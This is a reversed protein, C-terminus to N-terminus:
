EVLRTEAEEETMVDIEDILVQEVIVALDKVSPADFLQQLTLDVGFSMKLRMVLQMGLLSHGGALFFNDNAGITESGLLKQVIMLLNAEIPTAPAEHGVEGLPLPQSQDELKGVDLKGNPSLPVARLQMITSPVMYDPLSRLLHQQLQQATPIPTSERPLVYADLQSGGADCVKVTAVAFAIYPHQVLVSGIEDLEVRQGRIKVQRDV